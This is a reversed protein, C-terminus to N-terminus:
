PSRQNSHRRAEDRRRSRERECSRCHRGREDRRTNVETFEHGAHCHTLQGYGNGRHRGKSMKDAVNDATTGEFIHASGYIDDIAKVCPPNDCRHLANPTPWRGEALFFAVVHAGRHGPGYERLGLNITGYGNPNTTATWIWCPGLHPQHGPIPGNKDVKEWFREALSKDASQHWLTTACRRCSDRICM